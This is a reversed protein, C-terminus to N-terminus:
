RGPAALEDAVLGEGEEHDGVQEADGFLIVGLESRGPRRGDPDLGRSCSRWRHRVVRELVQVLAEVSRCRPDDDGVGRRRQRAEGGAVNSPDVGSTRSTTRTAVLRNAPCSVVTRRQTGRGGIPSRGSRCCSRRSSRSWCGSSRRPSGGTRSGPSPLSRSDADGRRHTADLDGPVVTITSLPAAFRSGRWKSSGASNSTSRVLAGADRARVRRGYAGPRQEGAGLGPALMSRRRSRMASM